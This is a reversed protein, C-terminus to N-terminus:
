PRGYFLDMSGTIIGYISIIMMISGLVRNIIWISRINIHNRLINVMTTIFLWWLMCGCFISLVGIAYFLWNMENQMFEFRTQLGIILFVILPNIITMGFGSAIDGWRSKRTTDQEQVKRISTKPNHFIIYLAFLSLFGGGLVKFLSPHQEIPEIVFSLGLLAVITYFLDSLAVGLGAFLGPRQGKLMTHQLIFVGSPGMPASIIIGIILGNLITNFLLAQLQDFM